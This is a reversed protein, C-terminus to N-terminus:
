VSLGRVGLKISYFNAGFVALRHLGISVREKNRRELSLRTMAQSLQQDTDAQKIQELKQYIEKVHMSVREDKQQRERFKEETVKQPRPNVFEPDETVRLPQLLVNIGQKELSLLWKAAM